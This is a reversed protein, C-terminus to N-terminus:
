RMTKMTLYHPAKKDQNKRETERERTGTQMTKSKLGSALQHTTLTRSYIIPIVGLRHLTTSNKRTKGESLREYFTMRCMRSGAKLSDVYKKVLLKPVNRHLVYKTRTIFCLLTVAGEDGVRYLSM